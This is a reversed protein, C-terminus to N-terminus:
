PTNTSWNLRYFYPSQVSSDPDTFYSNTLPLWVTTKQQWNILNSSGWVNYPGATGGTAGIQFHGNAYGFPILYPQQFVPTNLCFPTSQSSINGDHDFAAITLCYQSNPSLGFLSFNTSTTTAIFSGNVYINYGALGSGGIDFARNWAISLQSPIFATPVLNTPVSPPITDLLSTAALTVRSIRNGAPDYSYSERSGDSYAANTIRNLSDYSYTFTAADTSIVFFCVCSLALVSRIRIMKMKILYHRFKTDM